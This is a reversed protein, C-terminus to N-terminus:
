LYENLYLYVLHFNLSMFFSLEKNSVIGQNSFFLEFFDYRIIGASFFSNM